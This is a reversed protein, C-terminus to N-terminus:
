PLNNQQFLNNIIATSDKKKATPIKNTFISLLPILSPEAIIRLKELATFNRRSM